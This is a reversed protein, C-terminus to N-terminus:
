GQPSPTSERIDQEKELSDAILLTLGAAELLTRRLSLFHDATPEPSDVIRQARRMLAYLMVVNHTPQDLLTNKRVAL